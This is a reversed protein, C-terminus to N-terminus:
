SLMISNAMNIKQADFDMLDALRASIGEGERFDWRPDRCYHDHIIKREEPTVMELTLEDHCRLLIFWQCSEPIPPTVKPDLTQLIPTRNQEALAKYIRPMVPFHYGAHCEDGQGFYKVVEHPPQCAEALLLTGPRLYDLAARIFRTITHSGPLNECM